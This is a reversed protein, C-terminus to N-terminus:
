KVESKEKERDAIEKAVKCVSEAISRLTKESINSKNKM